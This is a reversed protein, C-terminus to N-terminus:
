APLSFWVVVFCFFFFFFFFVFGWFGWLFFLHPDILSFHHMGFGGDLIFSLPPTFSRLVSAM